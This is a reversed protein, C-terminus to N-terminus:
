SNYHLYRIHLTDSTHGRHTSVCLNHIVVRRSEGLNRGSFVGLDAEMNQSQGHTSCSGEGPLCFFDCPFSATHSILSLPDVRPLAVLALLTGAPGPWETAGGGRPALLRLIDGHLLTM